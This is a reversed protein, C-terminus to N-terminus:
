NIGRKSTKIEILILLFKLWRRLNADFCCHRKRRIAAVHRRDDDVLRRFDRRIRRGRRRRRDGDHLELITQSIRLVLQSLTGDIQVLKRRPQDGRLRFIFGVAIQFLYFWM